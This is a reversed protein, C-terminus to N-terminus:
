ARSPSLKRTSMWATDSTWTLQYGGNVGRCFARQPRHPFLLLPTPCFMQATNQLLVHYLLEVNRPCSIHVYISVSLRVVLFAYRNLNHVGKDNADVMKAFNRKSTTFTRQPLLPSQSTTPRITFRATATYRSAALVSRKLAFASALAVNIYIHPPISPLHQAMHLANRM